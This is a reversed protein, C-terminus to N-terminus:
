LNPNGPITGVPDFDRYPAREEALVERMIGKLREREDYAVKAKELAEVRTRLYLLVQEERTSMFNIRYLTSGEVNYLREVLDTFEEIMKKDASKEGTTEMKGGEVNVWNHKTSCDSLGNCRGGHGESIWAADATNSCQTCILIRRQDWCARKHEAVNEDVMRDLGSTHYSRCVPCSWEKTNRWGYANFWTKM